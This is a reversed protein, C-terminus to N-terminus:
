KEATYPKKQGYTALASIFVMLTPAGTLVYM